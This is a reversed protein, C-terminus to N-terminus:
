DSTNYGCVSKLRYGEKALRDFEEQYTDALMGHRAIWAPGDIKQWIAAYHTTDGSRWGSVRVLRFGQGVFKNFEEQYQSSTMGHRAAWAPGSQLSARPGGLRETVLADPAPQQEWIAAYLDQGGANYGSIDVPRYGQSKLTDFQQQYQDATMGHRAIWAPGPRKEWIAAYLDRGGVGYGSVHVLRYGQDKFKNFEQQYQDSTMGHRAVWPVSEPGHPRGIRETLLGSAYQRGQPKEWIAAYMDQDGVAYGSVDVLRYGQRTLTDFAQQYQAATLGHRAEWAPGSGKEWIAAYRTLKPNAQLPSRVVGTSTRHCCYVKSGSWCSSGSSSGPPPEGRTEGSRCGGDCFPATGDWRCAVGAQKCCLAKTGTACGAGFPPNQNVFPPTWHSPVSDLRTIETEDGNCEGDCLPATGDWRCTQAVAQGGWSAFVLGSTVLWGLARRFKFSM